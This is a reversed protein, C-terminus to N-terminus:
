FAFCTCGLSGWCLDHLASALNSHNTHKHAYQYTGYIAFPINQTFESILNIVM